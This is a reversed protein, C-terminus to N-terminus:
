LHGYSMFHSIVPDFEKPLSPKSKGAVLKIVALYVSQDEEVLLFFVFVIDAHLKEGVVPPELRSKTVASPACDDQGARLQCV